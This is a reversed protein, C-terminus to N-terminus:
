PQKQQLAMQVIVVGSCEATPEVKREKEEKKSMIHKVNVMQRKQMFVHERNRGAIGHVSENQIKMERKDRDEYECMYM